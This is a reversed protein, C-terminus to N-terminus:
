QDGWPQYPYLEFRRDNYLTVLFEDAAPVLELVTERYPWLSTTKGATLDVVALWYYGREGTLCYLDGAQSWAPNRHHQAAHTLARTTKGNWLYLQDYQLSPAVYVLQQGDPAWAPDTEDTETNAIVGLLHGDLDLLFLDADGKLNAVVALRDGQPSWAVGIPNTIEADLPTEVGSFLDLRYLRRDGEDDSLFVLQRGDPALDYAFVTRDTVKRVEDGDARFLNYLRGQSDSLFFIQGDPAIKVMTQNRYDPYLPDAEAIYSPAEAGEQYIQPLEERWDNWLEKLTRDFLNKFTRDRHGEKVVAKLMTGLQEQGYKRAIYDVLSWAEAYHLNGRVTSIESLSDVRDRLVADRLAIERMPFRTEVPMYFEALGEAIWGPVGSGMGYLLENKFPGITILHTIEHTLVGRLERYTPQGIVVLRNVLIHAVGESTDDFSLGSAQSNQYEKRSAFLIVRIKRYPNLTYLDRFDPFVRDFADEELIRASREALEELGQYFFIEFHPTTLKKWHLPRPPAKVQGFRYEAGTKSLEVASQAPFAWALSLLFLALVFLYLRHNKKM